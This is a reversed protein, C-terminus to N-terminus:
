SIDLWSLGQRILFFLLDKKAMKKIDEKPLLKKTEDVKLGDPIKDVDKNRVFVIILDKQNKYMRYSIHHTNLYDILYSLTPSVVYGVYIPKWLNEKIIKQAKDLHKKDVLLVIYGNEKKLKIPIKNNYFSLVIDILTDLYKTKFVKVYKNEAKM